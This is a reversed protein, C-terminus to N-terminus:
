KKVVKNKVLKSVLQEITTVRGIKKGNKELKNVFSLLKPPQIENEVLFDIDNLITYTDDFKILKGECFLMTKSTISLVHDLNHTVIIITKGAEHLKKFISLMQDCGVPDLGATPEDFILFDPSMALIGAIAVRRKEGGSLEFPSKNWYHEPLGVLKLNEMAVKKAESRPLGLNLPGFMIDKGITEEFLQYEAFQFVVGIRSRIQLIGRIKKRSNTITKTSVVGLKKLKKTKNKASSGNLKTTINAFKLKQKELKKAKQLEMKQKKDSSKAKEIKQNYKGVLLKKNWLKYNNWNNLNSLIIQGDSPQLLCNLHQIFTTKGSGTPGIIGIFEGQMIKASVNQIAIFELSTKANYKYTLDKVDIQM